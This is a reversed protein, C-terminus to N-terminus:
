QRGGKFGGTSLEKALQEYSKGTLGYKKNYSQYISSWEDNTNGAEQSTPPTEVTSSGKMELLVQERIEERLKEQEKLEEEKKSQLVKEKEAAIERELNTKKLDELEKKLEELSKEAM